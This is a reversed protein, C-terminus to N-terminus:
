RETVAQEVQRPSTRAGLSYFLAALLVAGILLYFTAVPVLHALAFGCIVPGLAAGLNSLNQAGYYM